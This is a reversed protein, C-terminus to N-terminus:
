DGNALGMDLSLRALLRDVVEPLSGGALRSAEPYTRATGGRDTGGGDRQRGKPALCCLVRTADRRASKYAALFGPHELCRRLTAESLGVAQAAALITPQSLLTGIAPNLIHTTPTSGSPEIWQGDHFLLATKEQAGAVSIIFKRITEPYLYILSISWLAAFMM